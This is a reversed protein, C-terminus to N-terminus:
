YLKKCLKTGRGSYHFMDFTYTDYKAYDFDLHEYNDLVMWGGKKLKPISADLMRQRNAYTAGGSCSDVLILDFSNDPAAEVKRILKNVRACTLDVKDTTLKEEVMEAWLRDNELSWLSACRQEFFLTSGGSGMELINFGYRSDKLIKELAMISGFTLWPYGVELTKRGKYFDRLNPIQTVITKM